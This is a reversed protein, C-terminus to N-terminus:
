KSIPTPCESSALHTCLSTTKLTASFICQKTLRVMHTPAFPTFPTSVLVSCLQKSTVGFAFSSSQYSNTNIALLFSSFTKWFGCFRMKPSSSDASFYLGSWERPVLSPPAFTRSAFAPSTGATSSCHTHWYLVRLRLSFRIGRGGPFICFPKHSRRKYPM